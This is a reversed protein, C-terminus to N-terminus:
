AGVSAVTFRVVRGGGLADSVSRKKEGFLDQENLVQDKYFASLKGEVIKPIAQEPKGEDRTQKELLVREREVEEAPVDDRDLYRPKAFAIHLAVEHAQEQTAGEVELLVGVKGRGDQEHLYTDLVHGAPAEYRAVVGLEINEKKTIKLEDIAESREDVAEAGKELVVEALEHVLSTFDDAKASFDTECKLEVLAAVGESKAVAVAGEPNERDARGAAKSLGKERLWDAAAEADGDTEQLAKKADMMGAGTAQRLAQVDKATFNPM